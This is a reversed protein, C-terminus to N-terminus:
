RYVERFSTCGRSNVSVERSHYTCYGNLNRLCRLCAGLPLGQNQKQVRCKVSCYNKMKRTKSLRGGCVVCVNVKIDDIKLMQSIPKVMM